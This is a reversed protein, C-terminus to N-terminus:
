DLGPPLPLSREVPLDADEWGTTGQPYWYVSMYGYEVARRAANWSMWCDALCYFIIKRDHNHATVRELGERFYREIEDSLRGFGVNPLWVSGPINFRVLPLWLSGKPRNGPEPPRPLVDIPLASQQEILMRARQTDVTIGGPFSSPVPARFNDLRYGEGSFLNPIEDASTVPHPILLM